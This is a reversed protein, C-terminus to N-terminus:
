KQDKLTEPRTQRQSKEIRRYKRSFVTNLPSISLFNYDIDEGYVVTPLETLLYKFVYFGFFHFHKPSLLDAGVADRPILSSFNFMFLLFSIKKIINIIM